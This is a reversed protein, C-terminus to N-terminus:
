KRDKIVDERDVIGDRYPEFTPGLTDQSTIPVWKAWTVDRTVIIVVRTIPIYMRYLNHPHDEAHGLQV